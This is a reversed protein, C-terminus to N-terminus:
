TRKHQKKMNRRIVRFKRSDQEKQDDNNSYNNKKGVPIRQADSHRQQRGM